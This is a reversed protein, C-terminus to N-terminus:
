KGRAANANKKIGSIKKGKENEKCNGAFVISVFNEGFTQLFLQYM